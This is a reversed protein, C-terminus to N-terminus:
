LLSLHCFKVDSVSKYMSAKIVIYMAIPNALQIIMDAVWKGFFRSSNMVTTNTHGYRQSIAINSKGKGIVLFLLLLISTTLVTITNVIIVNITIANSYPM